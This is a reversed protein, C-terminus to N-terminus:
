SQGGQGPGQKRANPSHLFIDRYRLDKMPPRILYDHERLSDYGVFPALYPVGYVELSCLSYLLLLMGIFLGFLGLFSALTALVFRWMRLASSFDYSIMTYSSIISIAVVVVVGSSVFHANVTAEGILLGGVVSVTQGIGKPMRMGAEALIEAAVLMILVEVFSPLPVGERSKQIFVALEAPIMEIHFSTVAIYFAPILLTAIFLFYRLIRISTNFLYNQSYDAPDRFFSSFVAPTIYGLPLGDVLVGVCGQLLWMAMKDPRETSIVQPFPNRAQDALAEEVIGSVLMGDVDLKKLRRETEDIFTQNTVGALYVINVTTSTQRGLTLMKFTLGPSAIKRRLLSTNARINEIFADKSGKISVEDEPQSVTRQPFGKVEILICTKERGVLLAVFGKPIMHLLTDMDTCTKLNVISLLNHQLLDLLQKGKHLGELGELQILPRLVDQDLTRGDVMGDIYCVLCPVGGADIEHLIVDSSNGLVQRLTGADIPQPAAQAEGPVAPKKKFFM